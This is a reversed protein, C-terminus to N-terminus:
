TKGGKRRVKKLYGDILEELILNADTKNRIAHVRLDEWLNAALTTTVKVRMPKGGKKQKM